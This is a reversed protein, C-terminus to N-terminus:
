DQSSTAIQCTRAADIKTSNKKLNQSLNMSNITEFLFHSTFSKAQSSIRLQITGGSKAINIEHRETNRM